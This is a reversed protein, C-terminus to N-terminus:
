WWCWYVVGGDEEIGKLAASMVKHEARIDAFYDDDYETSGFFFGDQTPLAGKAEEPSKSRMLRALTEVLSAFEERTVLAFGCNPAEDGIQEEVWAHIHNEKRGLWFSNQSSIEDAFTEAVTPEGEQDQESEESWDRPAITRGDAIDYFRERQEKTITWMRQDLGM